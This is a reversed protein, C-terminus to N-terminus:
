RTWSTPGLRYGPLVSRLNFPLDTLSLSLSPPPCLSLCRDPSRWLRNRLALPTGLQGITRSSFRQAHSVLLVLRRQPDSIRMVGITVRDPGSLVLFGKEDMVILLSCLFGLAQAPLCLCRHPTELHRLSPPLPSTNEERGSFGRLRRPETKEHVSCCWRSSFM